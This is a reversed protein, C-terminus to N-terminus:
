NDIRSSVLAWATGSGCGSVADHEADVFVGIQYDTVDEFTFTNDGPGGGCGSVVSL